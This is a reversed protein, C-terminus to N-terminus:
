NVDKGAMHTFVARELSERATLLCGIAVQSKFGFEEGDSRTLTMGIPMEPDNSEHFEIRYGLEILGELFYFAKGMRRTSKVVIEITGFFSNRDTSLLVERKQTPGEM